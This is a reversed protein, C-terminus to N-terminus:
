FKRSVTMWPFITEIYLMHLTLLGIIHFEVFGVFTIEVKKSVLSLKVHLGMAKLFHMVDYVDVGKDFVIPTQLEDLDEM